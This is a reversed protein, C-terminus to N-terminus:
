ECVTYVDLSDNSELIANKIGTNALIVSFEIEHNESGPFVKWKAHKLISFIITIIPETSKDRSKNKRVGVFPIKNKKQFVLKFSLFYSFEKGSSSDIFRIGKPIEIGRLKECFDANTIVPLRYHYKSKVIITHSQLTTDHRQGQPMSKKASAILIGIFFFNIFLRM